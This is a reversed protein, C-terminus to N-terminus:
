VAIGQLGAVAKRAENWFGAREPTCLVRLWLVEERTRPLVGLENVGRANKTRVLTQGVVEQVVVEGLYLIICGPELHGAVATTTDSVVAHIHPVGDAIVGSMSALELPVDDWRAFHEVAPYGTTTVMHLVCRSLTGIGSAVYGDTIGCARIAEGLSSLVDDGPDLRVVITRGPRGKGFHRM